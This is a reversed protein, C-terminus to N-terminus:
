EEKEKEALLQKYTEAERAAHAYMGKLKANREKLEAIRKEGLEAGDIYAQVVRDRVDTFPPQNLWYEEAEKEFM